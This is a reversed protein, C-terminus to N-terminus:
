YITSNYIEANYITTESKIDNSEMRAIVPYIEGNDNIIGDVGNIQINSFTTSAGATSDTAYLWVRYVYDYEPTVSVSLTDEDSIATDSDIENGDQDYIALKPRISTGTSSIDCTLITEIGAKCPLELIYESEGTVKIDGSETMESNNGDFLGAAGIPLRGFRDAVEDGVVGSYGIDGWLDANILGRLIDRM